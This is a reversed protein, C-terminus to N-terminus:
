PMRRKLPPDRTRVGDLVRVAGQKEEQGFSDITYVDGNYTRNEGQFFNQFQYSTDNGSADILKLYIGIALM